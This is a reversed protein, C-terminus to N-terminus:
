TSSSGRAAPWGGKPWTVSSPRGAKRTVAAFTPRGYRSEATEDLGALVLHWTDRDDPMDAYQYGDLRGAALKEDVMEAVPVRPEADQAVTVDCFARLTPVERPTFFRLPGDLHLRAVVVKTTAEDWTDQADFVDFDPYRGIMQPTTGRRQRPLWSADPPDKGARLNPLHDPTSLDRRSTPEPPM